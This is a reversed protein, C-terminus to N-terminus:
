ERRVVKYKLFLCVISPVFLIVGFGILQSNILIKDIDTFSRQFGEFCWIMLIFYFSTILYGAVFISWQLYFDTKDM